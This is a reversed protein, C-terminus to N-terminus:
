IIRKNHYDVKANLLSEPIRLDPKNLLDVLHFYQPWFHGEHFNLNSDWFGEMQYVPDDPMTYSIECIMPKKESDYLFDFAMAQFKLDKVIRLAIKIFEKDINKYTEDVIGSGSARFDNPRTFRRAAFAREGIVYVRTDWGNDPLFKQFFVYNKELQWYNPVYPQKGLLKKVFNKVALIKRNEGHMIGKSFMREIIEKAQQKTKILSVGSSAAGRRLKFVLPFEAKEIWDLAKAKNWFVWSKAVEYGLQELLLFHKIKDDYHWSTNIDPFCKINLYNELVPLISTTIQNYDDNTERRHIFLDVKKVKEWFDSENVDLLTCDINNYSLIDIYKKLYPTIKGYPTKNIGVLM